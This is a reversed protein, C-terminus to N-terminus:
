GKGPESARMAELLEGAEAKAEPTVRVVVVGVYPQGYVILSGAPALIVSPLALLDEEGVVRVVKPEKEELAWRLAEYAEETVEGAPNRVVIESPGSVTGDIDARMVRGDVVYISADLGFRRMWLSVSDGVAIIKPPAGEAIIRGLHPMTKEPPGTLLQGLPHKLRTRTKENIRYLPL